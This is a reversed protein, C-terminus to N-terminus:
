RRPSEPRPSATAIAQELRNKMRALFRAEDVRLADRVEHPLRRKRAPVEALAADLGGRLARDMGALARLAGQQGPGRELVEVFGLIIEAHDKEDLMPHRAVLEGWSDFFPGIPLLLDRSRRLGRPARLPLFRHNEIAMVAKNISGCRAFVGDFRSADHHGLRAYRGRLREFREGRPWAEVVRSLDGLNHAVVTVCSLALAPDRGALAASLARAERELEADIQSALRDVQPEAGLAIARGLAGARVSLWEGDHGSLPGLDGITVTRASVLPTPWGAAEDVAGLAEELLAPDEIGQWFHHRIRADVDTPIFTAVTAYHAALLLRLYLVGGASAPWSAELTKPAERLVAGFSLAGSFSDELTWPATNRVQDVLVVPAIGASSM